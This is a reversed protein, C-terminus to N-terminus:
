LQQLCASPLSQPLWVEIQIPKDAGLEKIRDAMILVRDLIIPYIHSCMHM